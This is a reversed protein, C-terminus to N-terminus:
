FAGKEVCMLIVGFGMKAFKGGLRFQSLSLTNSINANSMMGETAPTGIVGTNSKCTTPRTESRGNKHTFSRLPCHGCNGVSAAQAPSTASKLVPFIGTHHKINAQVTRRNPQLDGHLWM